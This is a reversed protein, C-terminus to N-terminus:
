ILAMIVAIALLIVYPANTLLIANDQWLRGVVVWCAAGLLSFLNDYFRYDGQIDAVRITLGILLLVSACWKFYWSLDKDPRKM